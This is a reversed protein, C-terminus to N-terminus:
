FATLGPLRGLAPSLRLEHPIDQREEIEPCLSYFEPEILEPGTTLCVSYLDLVKRVPYERRPLLLDGNTEVREFHRKLLLRRLCYQEITHTATILCYRSMPDERDDIGLMAKFDALPILSHLQTENDMFVFYALSIHFFVFVRDLNNLKAWAAIDGTEADPITSDGSCLGGLKENAQIWQACEQQNAM